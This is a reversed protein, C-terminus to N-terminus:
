KWPPVAGHLLDTGVDQQSVNWEPHAPLIREFVAVIVIVAGTIGALLLDKDVGHGIGWLAVAFAAVFTVPFLGVSIVRDM